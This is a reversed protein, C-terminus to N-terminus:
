EPFAYRTQGRTDVNQLPEVRFVIPYNGSAPGILLAHHREIRQAFASVTEEDTTASKAVHKVDDRHPMYLLFLNDVQRLVTENLHTVMNTVFTSTVGLHRARTVLNEIREGSAYLHAEEFFVFPLKQAERSMREVMDLAASVFTERGWRSTLRALDIVITGGSQACIEYVRDFSAGEEPNDAFLNLGEIIELRDMIADRVMDRQQQQNPAAHREPFLNRISQLNLFPRPRQRNAPAQQNAVDIEELQDFAQNVRSEFINRTNETPNFREFLRIFAHRGFGEITFRFNVGASLFVAGASNVQADGPIQSVTAFDSVRQGNIELEPLGRYERNMDFVVSVMKHRVLELILVKALHSKGMGKLATIVNVKEISRGAILLDRGDLTTGVRIPHLPSSLGCNEFLEDDQIREIFVNRSPLYGNWIGWHGDPHRLRRIKGIAQGLNDVQPANSTTVFTQVQEAGYSDEMIQRMLVENLSPYNFTELAVLQVVLAVGSNESPGSVDQRSGEEQTRAIERVYYSDGVRPREGMSHDYLFVVQDGSIHHLRM